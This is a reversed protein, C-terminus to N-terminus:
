PLDGFSQPYEDVSWPAGIDASGIANALQDILPTTMKTDKTHKTTFRIPDTLIPKLPAPPAYASLASNKNQARGAGHV